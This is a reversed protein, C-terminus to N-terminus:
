QATWGGDIAIAAGTISRASQQCLFTALAGVEEVTVFQGSPQKDRLLAKEAEEVSCQEKTARAEIQARVLPTLVWGPCIANCTIGSGATELATTKTLGVMAHKSAIYAAKQASAVLGHASAINIIRGFGATRMHPLVSRTAYFTASLNIDMIAQWHETAFTEIPSVHQIGANNVLIDVRGWRDQADRVMARIDGEERMDAPHHCVDTGYTHTMHEIQKAIDEADAFGNLMVHCGAAALAEAIGRGIGSTSGTVIASTDALSHTVM